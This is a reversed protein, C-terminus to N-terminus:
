DAQGSQNTTRLLSVMVRKINIPTLGIGTTNHTIKPTIRRETRRYNNLSWLLILRRRVMLNNMTKNRQNTPTTCINRLEM